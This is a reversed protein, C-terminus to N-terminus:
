RLRKTYVVLREQHERKSRSYKGACTILNLRPEISPGFIATVPAASTKYAKVAQVVFEMPNGRENKVIVVDGPNLQKLRFFVAPGKYSDYHGDMVANGIAGPLVGNMLYGVKESSKPVGMQGNDLVHVAEVTAHLDIAPIYLRAPVIGTPNIKKKNPKSDNDQKANFNGNPEPPKTFGIIQNPEIPSEKTVSCNAVTVM